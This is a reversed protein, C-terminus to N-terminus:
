QFQREWEVFNVNSETSSANRNDQQSIIKIVQGNQQSRIAIFDYAHFFPPLLSSTITLNGVGNDPDTIVINIVAAPTTPTSIRRFAIIEGPIGAYISGAIFSATGNGNKGIHVQGISVTSTGIATPGAVGGVTTGHFAWDGAFDKLKLQGNNKDSHSHRSLSLDMLSDSDIASAIAHHPESAEVNAMCPIIFLTFSLALKSFAQIKFMIEGKTQGNRQIEPNSGFQKMVFYFINILEIYLGSPCLVNVQGWDKIRFKSRKLINKLFKHLM